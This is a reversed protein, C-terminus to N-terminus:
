RYFNHVTRKGKGRPENKKWKDTHRRRKTLMANGSGRQVALPANRERGRQRERGRERETDETEKKRQRQTMGDKEQQIDRRNGNVLEGEQGRERERQENM